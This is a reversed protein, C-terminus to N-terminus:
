YSVRELPSNDITIQCSRMVDLAEQHLKPTLGACLTADVVINADPFAAKALLVNSIVCIDTCTGCFELRASPSNMLTKIAEIVAHSGFTPKCVVTDDHSLSALPEVLEWGKSNVICHEVPLKKGEASELYREDHTDKTWLIKGGSERVEEVRQAIPEVIAQAGPNALSGDVFDHQMDVVILVTDKSVTENSKTAINAKKVM